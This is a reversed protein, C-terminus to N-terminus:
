THIVLRLNRALHAIDGALGNRAIKSVVSARLADDNTGSLLMATEAETLEALKEVRNMAQANGPCTWQCRTCGVLANHATAPIWPPIPEPLENYLTVCRGANIVFRDPRIARTPCNITCISCGRCLHMPRVSHWTGRASPQDTFYAVLRHFSGMGRVFTINNRGYEALGTRAALLKLPLTARELKATDNRLV